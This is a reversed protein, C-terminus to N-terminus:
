AAEPLSPTTRSAGSDALPLTVRFTTGAGEQSRVRIHGGHATVIKHVLALGLGHGKAKLTFFPQFIRDIHQAPIGVGTDIVTLEVAEREQDSPRARLVVEGGDPMAEMANQILNKIVQRMLLPDWQAESPLGTVSVSVRITPHTPVVAAERVFPELDIRRRQPELDRGFALLDEILEQMVALEHVIGDVMPRGADEALLRKGLMKTWGLITGMYNRFEHAIGASMEGLVALRREVDIQRELRKIQTLDTFVLAVGIMEGARDHLLASSVGVCVQDTARAFQWERRSIPARNALSQRIMETIPSAAGFVEECRRDVVQSPSQGLIREASANFTTIVGGADCTIVGTAISRLIIEQYSEVQEARAVAQDRLTELKVENTKLDRLLEQFTHMVFGPRHDGPDSPSSVRRRWARAAAVTLVLCGMVVILSFELLALPREAGAPLPLGRRLTAVLAVVGCVVGLWVLSGARETWRPM